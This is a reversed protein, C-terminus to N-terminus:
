PNLRDRLEAYKGCIQEQIVAKVFTPIEREANARERGIFGGGFVILRGAITKQAGEFRLGEVFWQNTLPQDLVVVKSGGTEDEFLSGGFKAKMRRISELIGSILGNTM